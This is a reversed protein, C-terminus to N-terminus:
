SRRCDLSRDNYIVIISIIERMRTWFGHKTSGLLDRLSSIDKQNGFAGALVIGIDEGKVLLFTSWVSLIM